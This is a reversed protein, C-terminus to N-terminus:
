REERTFGLKALLVMWAFVPLYPRTLVKDETYANLILWVFVAVMFAYDPNRRSLNISMTVSLILILVLTIFGIYGLGGLTAIYGSHPSSTAWGLKETVFLLNKGILFSDYGHGVFPRQNILENLSNWLPLRGTLSQMSQIGWEGRGLTIANEGYQIFLLNGLLLFTLCGVIIIGLFILVSQHRKPTAMSWYIASAMMCSVFAMRSRTLILFLFAIIAIGIYIAHNQKATKVFVLASLLLLGCHWAQQISHMNGGFRWWGLFPHFSHTRLVSVLGGFIGAACIFFVLHITEQHSFRYAVYLAGLSLLVLIGVRKVTFRPDISWIISLVAWLLYFLILWGLLGNIQFRGPKIRLLNFLAFAGLSILAVIRQWNNRHLESALEIANTLDMAPNFMRLGLFPTTVSFIALLFLFTGWPLSSWTNQSRSPKATSLDNM